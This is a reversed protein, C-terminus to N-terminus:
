RLPDFLRVVREDAGQGHRVLVQVQGLVGVLLQHDVGRLGATWGMVVEFEECAPTVGVNVVRGGFRDGAVLGGVLLWGGLV